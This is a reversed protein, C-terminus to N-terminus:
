LARMRNGFQPSRPSVCRAIGHAEINRRMEKIGADIRPASGVCDPDIRVHQIPMANDIILREHQVLPLRAHGDFAYQRMVFASVIASQQSEGDVRM